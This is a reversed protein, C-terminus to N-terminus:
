PKSAFWSTTNPDFVCCPFPGDGGMCGALPNPCETSRQRSGAGTCLGTVQTLTLTPTPTPTLTLTLILTLTLTLAVEDVDLMADYAWPNAAATVQSLSLSLSLSIYEGSWPFPWSSHTM